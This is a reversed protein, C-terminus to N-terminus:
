VGTRDCPRRVYGKVVKREYISRLIFRAQVINAVVSRLVERRRKGASGGSLVSEAECLKCM